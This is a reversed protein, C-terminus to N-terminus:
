SDLLIRRGDLIGHHLRIWREALYVGMGCRHKRMEVNASRSRDMQTVRCHLQENIFCHLASHLAHSSDVVVKGAVKYHKAMKERMVRQYTTM